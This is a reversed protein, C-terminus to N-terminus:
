SELAAIAPPPPEPSESSRAMFRDILPGAMILTAVAGIVFTVQLEPTIVGLELGILGVVLVLLGGCSLLVGLANAEPGALGSARGALYGPGWKGAVMLVLFLLIGPVMGVDLQRFDTLLGSVAFFIPLFFLVIMDGIREVIADALARTVPVSLGFLFGGVLANIGIRDAALGTALALALLVTLITRLHHEQDVHRLARVMLPRVVVFLLGILGVTWALKEGVDSRVGTGKASASAAAIVLFVVVTVLGAVGLGMAAVPTAMLRKEQLLRAMVPLATAALGAGLFLAFTTDSVGPPRWTSGHFAPAAAFALVLPAAATAAAVVCIQRSRGRILRNDVEIGVLFMYLVLGVQSTVSLFSYAEPPFIRDVLGAGDIGITDVHGGLVTPGILIGAVIEGVVFPQSLASAIRGGLRLAVLIIAIDALVYATVDATATM